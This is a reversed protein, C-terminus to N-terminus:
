ALPLLVRELAFLGLVVLIFVLGLRFMVWAWRRYRSQGTLLWLVLSVGIGLATLLIVLRLVLM